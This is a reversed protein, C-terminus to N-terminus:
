GSTQPMARAIKATSNTASLIGSTSLTQSVSCVKMRGGAAAKSAYAEKASTGSGQFIQAASRAPLTANVDCPAFAVVRAAAFVLGSGNVLQASLRVSSAM